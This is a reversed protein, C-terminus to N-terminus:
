LNIIIDVYDETEGSGDDELRSDGLGIVSDITQDGIRVIVGGKKLFFRITSTMDSDILIKTVGKQVLIRTMYAYLVSGLGKRRFLSEVERHYLTFYEADKLGRFEAVSIGDYTNLSFGLREPSGIEETLFCEPHAEFYSGAQEATAEILDLCSVEPSFM